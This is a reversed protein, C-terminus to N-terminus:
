SIDMILNKLTLILIHFSMGGRMDRNILSKLIVNFKCLSNIDKLEMKGKIKIIGCVNKVYDLYGEFLKREDYGHKYM